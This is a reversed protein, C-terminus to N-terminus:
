FFSFEQQQKDVKQAKLNYRAKYKINLNSDVELYELFYVILRRLDFQEIEEIPVKYQSILDKWIEKNANVQELSKFEVSKAKFRTELARNEKILKLKLLSLAKILKKANDDIDHKLLEKLENNITGVSNEKDKQALTMENIEKKLLDLDKQFSKVMQDAIFDASHVRVDRLITEIVVSHLEDAKIRIRCAKNECYYIKSGSTSGNKNTTEQNKTALLKKCNMCRARDKFIFPTTFYKPPIEGKRRRQYERWCHEWDVESVVPKIYESKLCIWYERDRFVSSKNERKGWAFFGAYIPNTIISKVREKTWDKGKYSGKEIRQAIAKLGVHHKYLKFIERIVEFTEQHPTFEKTSKNYHYGFPAEGGNWLGKEARSKLGDYSRQKILIAEHKTFGDKLLRYMKESDNRYFTETSSIVVPIGLYEFKLRIHQHDLPDRALRDDNYVVVLDFKDYEADKLMKVLNKREFWETNVASQSEDIYEVALTCQYKELLSKASVRQMEIDQNITSYRGYFAARQGPKLVDEIKM